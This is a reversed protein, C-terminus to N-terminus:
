RNRVGEGAVQPGDSGIRVEMRPACGGIDCEMALEICRACGFSFTDPVQSITSYSEIARLPRDIVNQIWGARFSPAAQFTGSRVAASFLVLGSRPAASVRRHWAGPYM